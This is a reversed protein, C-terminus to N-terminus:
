SYKKDSIYADSPKSLVEIPFLKDLDDAVVVVFLDVYESLHERIHREITEKRKETPVIWAVKPFVGIRNHESGTLYYRGYNECKKIIRTPAETDMDIEFFWHDEYGDTATVAYM